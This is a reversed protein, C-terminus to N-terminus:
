GNRQRRMSEVMEASVVRGEQPPSSTMPPPGPPTVPPGGAPTAAMVVTPPSVVTSAVDITGTMGTQLYRRNRFYRRWHLGLTVLEAVAGVADVNEVITRGYRKNIRTPAMMRAIPAMLEQAGKPSLSLEDVLADRRAEGEPGEPITPDTEVAYSAVGVTALGVGRGLAKTLDDASPPGKGGIDAAVDRVASLIPRRQHDEESPAGKRKGGAIQHARYKHSGLLFSASGRGASPGIAVFTCGPEDCPKEIVDVDGDPVNIPPTDTM